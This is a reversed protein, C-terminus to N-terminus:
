LGQRKHFTITEDGVEPYYNVFYIIVSVTDNASDLYSGYTGISNAFQVFQLCENFTKLEGVNLVDDSFCHICLIIDGPPLNYKLRCEEASRVHIDLGATYCLLDHVKKKLEKLISKPCVRPFSRSRLSYTALKRLSLDRLRRPQRSM